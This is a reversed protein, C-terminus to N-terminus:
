ILLLKMLLKIVRYKTILYNENCWSITHWGITNDHIPLHLLGLKHVTQDEWPFYDM